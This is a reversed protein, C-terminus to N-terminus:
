IWLIDLDITRPGWRELRVRGLSSEIGQLADLLDLAEGAYDIRVAANLYAGQEPGGVADTEYVHSVREVHAIAGLLHLAARLHELRDGLNSGIGIIARM